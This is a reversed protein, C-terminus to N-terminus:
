PPMAPFTVRHTVPESEADGEVTVVEPCPLARAAVLAAPPDDKRDLRERYARQRCAPSCFRADTRPSQFPRRCMACLTAKMRRSRRWARQYCRTSCAVWRTTYADLSSFSMAIGCGPCDATANVYALEDPTACQGCLAILYRRFDPNPVIIVRLLESGCRWCGGGDRYHYHCVARM